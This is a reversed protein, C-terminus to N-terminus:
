PDVTWPLDDFVGQRGSGSTQVTTRAALALTFTAGVSAAGIVYPGLQLTTRTGLTSPLLGNGGGAFLVSGGDRRLDMGINDPLCYGASGAGRGPRPRPESHCVAGMSAETRSRRGSPLVVVREGPSMTPRMADAASTRSSGRTESACASTLRRPASSWSSASRPMNATFPSGELM